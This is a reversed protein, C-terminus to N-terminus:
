EKKYKKSKKPKTEPVPTSEPEAIPTAVPVPIPEIITTDPKPSPEKVEYVQNYNNGCKVGRSLGVAHNIKASAEVFTNGLATALCRNCKAIIM